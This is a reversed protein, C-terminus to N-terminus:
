FLLSQILPIIVSGPILVLVIYIWAKWISLWKKSKGYEITTKPSILFILGFIYTLIIFYIAAKNSQKAISDPVYGSEIKAIYIVLNNIFDQTINTNELLKKTENKLQQSYRDYISWQRFLSFILVFFLSSFFGILRFRNWFTVFQNPRNDDVWLELRQFVKNKLEEPIYSSSYKLCKGYSCDITISIEKLAIKVSYIIKKVKRNRMSIDRITETLTSACIKTEGSLVITATRDYKSLDNKKIREKLEDITLDKYFQKDKEAETQIEISRFNFLDNNIDDFVVDLSMLSAKSLFFPGYEEITNPTTIM